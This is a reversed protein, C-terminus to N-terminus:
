IVIRSMKEVERRGHGFVKPHQKNRALRIWEDPGATECVQRPVNRLGDLIGSVVDPHSEGSVAADVPPLELDVVEQSHLVDAHRDGADRFEIKGTQLSTILPAHHSLIGLYGEVGPVILSAIEGDYVIKEPTVISLRFM